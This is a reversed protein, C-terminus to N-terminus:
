MLALLRHPLIEVHVQGRGNGLHVPCRQDAAEEKNSGTRGEASSVADHQHGPGQSGLHPDRSLSLRYFYLHIHHSLLTPYSWFCLITKFQIM